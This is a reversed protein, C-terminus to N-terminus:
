SVMELKGNGRHRKRWEAIKLRALERKERIEKAPINYEKYDHVIYGKADKTWLGVAVLKDALKTPFKRDSLRPVVGSPIHGDTLKAQCYCLGAVYLWAADGGAAVVKPHDPFQDDLKVWAM